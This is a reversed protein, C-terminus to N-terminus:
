RAYNISGAIPKSPMLKGDKSPYTNAELLRKLQVM